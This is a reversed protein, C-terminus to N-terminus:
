NQVPTVQLVVFLPTDGTVGLVSYEGERVTTKTSFLIRPGENTRTSFRCEALQFSKGRLDYAGPQVQLDYTVPSRERRMSLAIDDGADVSTRLMGLAALTYGEYPLLQRLNRVVAEPVRGSAGPEDSGEIVWCTLLVQPSPVDIRGLLAKIEAVQDATDRVVVLPPQDVFALNNLGQNSRADFVPHTLPRLGDRVSRLTLYRPSYEWVVLETDVPAQQQADMESEYETELDRMATIAKAAFADTDYVVITDEVTFLNQIRGGRRDGLGDVLIDRGYIDKIPQLLSQVRMFRPRYYHMGVEDPSFTPMEPARQLAGGGSAQPDEQATLSGALVLGAALLAILLRKLYTMM